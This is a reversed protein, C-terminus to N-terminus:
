DAAKVRAASLALPVMVAMLVVVGLLAATYSGTRTYAAGMWIIGIMTMPVSMASQLGFARSFSGKGLSHALARSANPIMGAGHLGSLGVLVIMVPFPLHPIQMALLLLAMNCALLALGRAGGIRDAVWGFLLSGAMGAVSMSTSMLAGQHRDFGLSQAVPMMNLTMTMIGTIIACATLAIAWFVPKRLIQGVTLTDEAPLGAEAAAESAEAQAETGKPYDRVMLTAPVLVVAVIGALMLYVTRAGYHELVANCILPMAAVVVNAHVLGLAVGRNRSFWRTVLTAPGLSGTITMSPGFLLLYSGFYLAYNATFAMILYGALSLLAGIFLMLRMSYRGLLPGAVAGMLASGFMVVAGVSSSMARTVHMRQEVSALMVTFSGMLCGVVINHCLWGIVAMGIAKPDNPASDDALDSDLQM